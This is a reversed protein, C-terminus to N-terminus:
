PIFEATIERKILKDLDINAFFPHNLVEKVDDSQGLRSKRDKNLLKTILDKANDSVSIGHKVPDPWRLPASQILQYM